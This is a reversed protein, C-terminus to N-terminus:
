AEQKLQIHLYKIAFIQVTEVTYHKVVYQGRTRATSRLENAPRTLGYNTAIHTGVTQRFVCGGFIFMPIHQKETLCVDNIHLLLLGNREWNPYHTMTSCLILKNEWFIYSYIAWKEEFLLYKSM